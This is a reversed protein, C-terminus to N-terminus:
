PSTRENSSNELQLHQPSFVAELIRRVLLHDGSSEVVLAQSERLAQVGADIQERSVRVPLHPSHLQKM